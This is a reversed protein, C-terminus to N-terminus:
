KLFHFTTGVAIGIQGLHYTVMVILRASKFSFIFRSWANLVDSIFFLLAGFAVLYTNTTEWAPNLFSYAASFLMYSIVISYIGVPLILNNKGSAILGGKLRSFVSGGVILIILLLFIAPITTGEIISMVRFGIIYAIHGLLFAVLGPLFWKKPPLMLFIDGFLCLVLGIAIWILNPPPNGIEIMSTLVWAILAIMTLPKVFYELRRYENNAAIWELLAFLFVVVLIWNM